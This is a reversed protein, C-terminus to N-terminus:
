LFNFKSYSPLQDRIGCIKKLDRYQSSILFGDQLIWFLPVVLKFRLPHPIAHPLLKWLELKSFYITFMELKFLSIEKCQQNWWGMCTLTFSSAKFVYMYKIITFKLCLSLIVGMCINSFFRGSIKLDSRLSDRHIFCDLM